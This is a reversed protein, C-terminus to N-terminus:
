KLFIVNGFSATCVEHLMNTIVKGLRYLIYMYENSLKQKSTSQHNEQRDSVKKKIPTYSSQTLKQQVGFHILQVYAYIGEHKPKRGM